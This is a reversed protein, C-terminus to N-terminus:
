DEYKSLVCAHEDLEIVTGVAYMALIKQELGFWRGVERQSSSGYGFRFDKKLDSGKVSGCSITGEHTEDQQYDDRKKSLSILLHIDAAHTSRPESKSICLWCSDYEGYEIEMHVVDFGDNYDDEKLLDEILNSLKVRKPALSLLDTMDEALKAGLVDAVRAQIQAELIQCVTHGYSPINLNKIALAEGITKKILKGTDSWSTLSERIADDVLKDVHEQVKADIYEPTVTKLVASSVLDNLGPTPPTTM